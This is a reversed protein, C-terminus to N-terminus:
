WPSITGGYISHFAISFLRIDAEPRGTCACVGGIGHLSCMGCMGIILYSVTISVVELHSFANVFWVDSFPQPNLIYLSRKCCLLFLISLGILLYTFSECICMIGHQASDVRFGFWVSIGILFALTLVSYFGGTSAPSSQPLAVQTTGTNVLHM